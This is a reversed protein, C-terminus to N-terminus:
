LNEMSNHMFIELINNLLGVFIVEFMKKFVVGIIDPSIERTIGAPFGVFNESNRRHNRWFYRSFNSWLNTWFNNRINRLRNAWFIKRFTCLFTLFFYQFYLSKLSIGPFNNSPIRWFVRSSIRGHNRSSIRWFKRSFNCLCNCFYHKSFNKTLHRPSLCSKLHKRLEQLYFKTSIIFGIFSNKLFRNFFTQM